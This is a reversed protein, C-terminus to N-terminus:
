NNCKDTMQAVFSGNLDHPTPPAPLGCKEAGTQLAGSITDKLPLKALPQKPGTNGPLPSKRSYRFPIDDWHLGPSRTRPQQNKRRPDRPKFELEVHTLSKGKQLRALQANNVWQDPHKGPGM